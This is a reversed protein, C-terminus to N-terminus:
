QQTQTLASELRSIVDDWRYRRATEVGAQSLRAHIGPDSVIEITKEALYELDDSVFCNEGDVCYEDSGGDPTTVVPVGCAMAELRPLGFGEHRSTSVFVSHSALVGPMQADSPSVIYRVPSFAFAADNPSMGIVELSGGLAVLHRNYEMLRDFGKLANKRMIAVAADIRQVKKPPSYLPSIGIGIYECGPLNKEVWRSTTLMRLRGSYTSMVLDSLVKQSAYVTEIDQVLYYGYGPTFANESLIAAATRWFTAMVRQNKRLKLAVCLKDYDALTGTKFFSVVSVDRSLRFWRFDERKQLTWIEVAWGRATLRNAIEGIVRVGGSLTLAEALIIISKDM